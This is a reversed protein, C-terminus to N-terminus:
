VSKVVLGAAALDEILEGADKRAQDAHVDFEKAVDDSIEEINKKGDLREWIFAGAGELVFVEELDALKGCIPVLLTEGAIGRTVINDQKRYIM